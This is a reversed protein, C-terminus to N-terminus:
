SFVASALPLREIGSGPLSMPTPLVDCRTRSARFWRSTQPSVFQGHLAVWGGGEARIPAAWQGTLAAALPQVHGQACAALKPGRRGKAHPLQLWGPGPLLHRGRQLLFDWSAASGPCLSPPQALAPASCAWGACGCEWTCAHECEGVCECVRM